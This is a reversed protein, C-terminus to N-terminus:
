QTSVSDKGGWLSKTKSKSIVRTNDCSLAVGNRVMWILCSASLQLVSYRVLLHIFRQLIKLIPEHLSSGPRLIHEEALM